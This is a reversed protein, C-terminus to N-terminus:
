SCLQVAPMGNSIALVHYLKKLPTVKVTETDQIRQKSAGHPSPADKRIGESGWRRSYRKTDKVKVKKEKRVQNM